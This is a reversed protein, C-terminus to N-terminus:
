KRNDAEMRGFALGIASTGVGLHRAIEAFSLGLERNLRYFIEGRVKTV